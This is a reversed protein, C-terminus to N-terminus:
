SSGVGRIALFFSLIMGASVAMFLYRVISYGGTFMAYDFWLMAWLNLVYDIFSISSFNPSLLMQIRADPSTSESSGMYVNEVLGCVLSLMIFLIVVGIIWSTRM